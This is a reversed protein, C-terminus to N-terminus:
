CSKPRKEQNRGHLHKTFARILRRDTEESEKGIWWEDIMGDNSTIYERQQYRRKIVLSCFFTVFTFFLFAFCSLLFNFKELNHGTRVFYFIILGRGQCGWIWYSLNNDAQLIKLLCGHPSVNQTRLGTQGDQNGSFTSDVLPSRTQVGIMCHSGFYTQHLDRRYKSCVIPVLTLRASIENTSRAYLPFWLLDLPSRTQIELM